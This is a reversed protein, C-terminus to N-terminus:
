RAIPAPTSTDVKLLITVEKQTLFSSVPKVVTKKGDVVAWLEYDKTLPLEGFRYAGQDDANLAVVTNKQADKLYVTAGTLHKGSADEVFGSITRTTSRPSTDGHSGFNISGIPKGASPPGGTQAHALTGTLCFAAAFILVTLRAM